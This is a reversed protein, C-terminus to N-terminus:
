SPWLVYWSFHRVVFSGLRASGGRRAAAGLRILSYLLTYSLILSYLVNFYLIFVIFYQKFVTYICYCVLYICYFIICYFVIYICELGIYAEARPEAPERSPEARPEARSPYLVYRFPRKRRGAGDVATLLSRSSPPDCSCWMEAIQPVICCPADCVLDAPGPLSKRPLSVQM